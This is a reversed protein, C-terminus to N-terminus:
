LDRANGELTWWRAELHLPHSSPHLGYSVYEVKRLLLDSLLMKGAEM